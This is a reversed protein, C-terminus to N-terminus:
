LSSKLIQLYYRYLDKPYEANQLAEKVKCKPETHHSCNKYFCNKALDSLLFFNKALQEKKLPPLLFDRIGPSDAILINNKKPYIEVKTTTHKGLKNKQINRTKLDMEPFFHNLLSSKGVGSQGFVLTTKAKLKGLLLTNDKKRVISHTFVELGASQYLDLLIKLENKNILDIKTLLLITKIKELSFSYACSFIFEPMSLNCPDLLLVQDLNTFLIKKKLDKWRTIQNKRKLVEVIRKEEKEFLVFDGVVIGNDKNNKFLIAKARCLHMKNEKDLVYYNGRIGKLVIGKEQQM